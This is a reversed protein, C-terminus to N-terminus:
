YQGESKKQLYSVKEPFFKEIYYKGFMRSLMYCGTAGLGTLLCVLPFGIVTGFLAGGLVNLLVSGPIAFCQKYFYASSFLIVVYSMHNEKYQSLLAVLQHLDSFSTPFRIHTRQLLNAENYSLKPHSIALLYLALTASCLITFGYLASTIQKNFSPVM